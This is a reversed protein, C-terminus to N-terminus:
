NNYYIYFCKGIKYFLWSLGGLGFALLEQMWFQLSSINGWQDAGITGVVLFPCVLGCLLSLCGFIFSMNKM